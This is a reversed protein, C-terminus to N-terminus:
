SCAVLGVQLPASQARDDCGPRTAGPVAAAINRCRRRVVNGSLEQTELVRTSPPCVALARQACDVGTVPACAFLFVREGSTPRYGWWGCEDGVRGNDGAMTADPLAPLLEAPPRNFVSAPPPTVNMQRPPPDDAGVTLSMSLLFIGVVVRRM